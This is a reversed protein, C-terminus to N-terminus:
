GPNADHYLTTGEDHSDTIEDADRTTVDRGTPDRTKRGRTNGDLRDPENRHHDRRRRVGRPRLKKDYRLSDTRQKGRPADRRRRAKHCCYDRFKYDSRPSYQDPTVRGSGKDRSENAGERRRAHELGHLDVRDSSPDLLGRRARPEFGHREPRHLQQPQPAAVRQQSIIRIPRQFRLGTFERERFYEFDSRPPPQHAWISEIPGGTGHLHSATITTAMRMGTTTTTTTAVTPSSVVPLIHEIRATSAAGGNNEYVDDSEINQQMPLVVAREGYEANGSAQSRNDEANIEDTLVGNGTRSINPEERQGNPEAREDSAYWPTLGAFHDDEKLCARLLREYLVEPEGESNCAKNILDRRVEEVDNRRIDRSLARIDRIKLLEDMLEDHETSMTSQRLRARRVYDIHAKQM